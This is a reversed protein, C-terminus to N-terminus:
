KHLTPCYKSQRLKSCSNELRCISNIAYSTKLNHNIEVKEENKEGRNEQKKGVISIETEVNMKISNRKKM